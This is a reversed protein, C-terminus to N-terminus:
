KIFTVETILNNEVKYIAIADFRPKGKERQVKEQDIVTDGMVMRNVLECHLDPTKEFMAAYRKRMEEKGEYMLENRFSYVKVNESYATMFLEINRENYGKLQVVVPHNDPLGYTNEQAMLPLIPFLLVIFLNLKMITSFYTLRNNTKLM